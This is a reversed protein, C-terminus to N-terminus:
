AYNNRKKKRGITRLFSKYNDVTGFKEINKLKLKVEAKQYANRGFGDYKIEEKFKGAINKCWKRMLTVSDILETRTLKKGTVQGHFIKNRDLTIKKIQKFDDNYDHGYVEAVTKYFVLDIGEIFNDFYMDKNDVLVKILKIGDGSGYNNHQFILFTFIRRMQRETKLLSLAFSDIARTESESKLLIDVTSFEEEYDM